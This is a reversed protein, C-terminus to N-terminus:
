AVIADRAFSAWRAVIRAGTSTVERMAGPDIVTDPPLHPTAREAAAVDFAVHFRLGYALGSRFAAPPVRRLAGVPGRGGAPRVHEPVEAVRSVGVRSVGV